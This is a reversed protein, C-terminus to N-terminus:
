AILNNNIAASARKDFNIERVIMSWNISIWGLRM